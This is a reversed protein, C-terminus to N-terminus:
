QHSNLCGEMGCLRSKLRLKSSLSIRMLSSSQSNLRGLLDLKTERLMLRTFKELSTDYKRSENEGDYGITLATTLNVFEEIQAICTKSTWAM